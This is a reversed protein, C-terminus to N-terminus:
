LKELANQLRLTVKEAIRDLEKNGFIALIKSPNMIIVETKGEGIDKILVKCPLFIGVNEEAQFAKYALGPNCVGLIKYPNMEADNVKEKVKADMDIETITGFGEETLASKVKKTVQEISGDLTKTFYFDKNEQAQLLHQSLILFLISIIYTTKMNQFKQQHHIKESQM